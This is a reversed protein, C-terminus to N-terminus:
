HKKAIRGQAQRIRKGYVQLFAILFAAAGTIATQIGLVKAAGIQGVWPLQIYSAMFGGWIRGISVWASVEGSAEPFCDLLYANVATTAIMIGVCQAAAFLALVMYHWHHQVAFGLILLSVAMLLTAPYTIILRAEPEICGAHRRSYYYGVADHLWHGVFWGITVGTIGFFYFFGLNKLTFGYYNTLWLSITTNVSIVWAFNLFYYIVILIVPIKTLAVLPGVISQRFSRQKRSRAQEIGFVRLWRSRRTFQEHEPISRDYLTEDLTFILLLGVAWLITCIWFSWRWNGTGNTVFATILPGFYPSLIIPFEIANIQRPHEHFFFLDKIWLLGGGQAASCFFGMLVRATMFSTFSTAAAAWATTGLAICQFILLIPLRGFYNSLVITFIGSVGITFINGVVAQQVHYQQLNWQISQPIVTVIGTGATYDPLFALFAIVALIYYKKGASWNLPDDPSGSPQPILVTSGDTTKKLRAAGDRYLSADLVYGELADTEEDVEVDREVILEKPFSRPSDSM